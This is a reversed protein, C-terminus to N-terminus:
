RIAAGTVPLTRGARSQARLPASDDPEVLALLEGLNREKKSKIEAGFGMSKQSVRREV